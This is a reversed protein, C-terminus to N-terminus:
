VPATWRLSGDEFAYEIQSYMGMYMSRTYYRHIEHEFMYEIRLQDRVLDPRTGVVVSLTRGVLKVERFTVVMMVLEKKLADRTWVSFVEDEDCAGDWFFRKPVLAGITGDITQALLRLIRKSDFRDGRTVVDDLWGVWLEYWRSPPYQDDRQADALHGITDAFREPTPEICCRLAAHLCRAASARRAAMVDLAKAPDYQALVQIAPIDSDKPPTSSGLWATAEMAAASAQRVVSLELQPYIAARAASWAAVVPLVEAEGALVEGLRELEDRRLERVNPPVTDAPVVPAYFPRVLRELHARAM